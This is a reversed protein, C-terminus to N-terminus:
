KPSAQLEDIYEVYKGSIAIVKRLVQLNGLGGEEDISDGFVNVMSSLESYWVSLLFVSYKIKIYMEELYIILIVMGFRAIKEWSCGCDSIDNGHKLFLGDGEVFCPHTVLNLGNRYEIANIM